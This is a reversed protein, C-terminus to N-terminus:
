IEGRAQREEKIYRDYKERYSERLYRKRATELQTLESKSVEWGTIPHISYDIWTNM